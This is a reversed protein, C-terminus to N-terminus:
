LITSVKTERVMLPEMTLGTEYYHVVFSYLSFSLSLFISSLLFLSGKLTSDKLWNM